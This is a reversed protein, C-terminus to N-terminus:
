ALLHVLLILAVVCLVAAERAILSGEFRRDRRVEERFEESWVDGPARVMIRNDIGRDRERSM